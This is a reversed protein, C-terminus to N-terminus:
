KTQQKNHISDCHYEHANDMDTKAQEKIDDPLSKQAGKNFTICRMPMICEEERPTRSKFTM